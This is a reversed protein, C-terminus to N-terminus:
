AAADIQRGYAKLVRHFNAMEVANEAAPADQELNRTLRRYGNTHMGFTREVRWRLPVPTFGPVDSPKSSVQVELGHPTVAADMRAGTYIGDVNVRKPQWGAAAAKDLVLGVAATDHVNAATVVVALVFGLSCTLIHRKIGKVMKKGDVGREGAQPGSKVSQSDLITTSPEPTHGQRQRVAPTLLAAIDAWVGDAKFRDHWTRVTEWRGFDTPLYRWGCGTKQLYLCANVMERMDATLTRYDSFFPAITAWETDTLDSPYRRGDDKYRERHEATWM